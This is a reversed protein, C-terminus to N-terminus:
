KFHFRLQEKGLLDEITDPSENKLAGAIAWDVNSTTYGLEGNAESHGQAQPQNSKWATSLRIHNEFDAQKKNNQFAKTSLEGLHMTENDNQEAKMLGKFCM